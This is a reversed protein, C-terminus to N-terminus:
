KKLVDKNVVNAPGKGAFYDIIAHVALDAMKTRTELSASGIHPLMIVNQLPILEVPCRPEDEYVDLAAAFIRHSKLAKSLAVQDVVAGRSTNVLVATKKMMHFQKEGFMRRTKPTLPVHISIFDSQRVLEDLDAWKAGYEKDFDAQVKPDNYIIKMGFGKAARQAVAKGIRGLGVIGLTKGYLDVGLMMSPGWGEFRCERTFKDGEVIRRSAAIMMGLALDATTETLAGPTNTVLIGRKTAAEIDIKDFGVGYNSIIRLNKNADMVESDVPDTLICLLADKGKVGAILEDRSIISETERLDVDCHKRLEILANGPLPRTVFVKPRTM